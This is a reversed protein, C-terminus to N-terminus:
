PTKSLAIGDPRLEIHGQKWLTGVLKKFAKKSMGLRRRIEAPDSNDHLPLFGDAEKLVALLDDATALLARFGVPDLSLDLKGDPRIERIFGDITQGIQLRQHVEDQYLLGTHRRNVLVQIADPTFGYILLEVQQRPSLHATDRDVFSGLKQTAVIRGSREDVLVHVVCFDGPRVAGVQQRFPLLLDKDLGWDLFVGIDSVEQARLAAFEGVMALPKQTTAVPRDESDRYVFVELEDGEVAEAPTHRMPLLVEDGSEDRLFLGFRTSREVRFTNMRGMQM